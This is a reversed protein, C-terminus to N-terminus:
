ALYRCPELVAPHEVATTVIRGPADHSAAWARASGQIALNDAETGGSVFAVCHPRAGLLRAVANRSSELSLRAEHGPRHPSSPNAGQACFRDLAEILAQRARPRLPATANHDLYVQSM